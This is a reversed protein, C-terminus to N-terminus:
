FYIDNYLFSYIIYLDPCCIAIIISSLKSDTVNIALYIAILTCIFSCILDFHM